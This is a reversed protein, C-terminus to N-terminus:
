RCIVVYFLYWLISYRVSGWKPQKHPWKGCMFRRHRQFDNQAL